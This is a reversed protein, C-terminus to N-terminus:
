IVLDSFATKIRELGDIMISRPCALNLRQWGSWEKGFWSGPDLVVKGKNILRKNVAEETERCENFDLWLLYTGEPPSVAVWPMEKKFFSLAFDRNGMIYELMSDRWPAGERYAADGAVLGFNNHSGIATARLSAQFGDRLEPNSIITYATQLGPINFTKSPSVCTIINEALSPDFSAAPIHRFPKFVIDAHIEDSLLLTGTDLCLRGVLELEEKTWVRGVPNHPSCLLLIRNRPDSLKVELSEFDMRFVGDELLLPNEIIARDNDEIIRFFPPYVPPQIIVGDGHRTFARIAVGVAPMVGTSSTIWGPDVEWGHISGMWDKVAGFTAAPTQVYGFVGQEARERIAKVVCPPSLFDMDAVWMPLADGPVPGFRENMGDWKLSDTGRREVVREFDFM